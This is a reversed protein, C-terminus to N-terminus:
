VEQKGHHISRYGVGALIIATIINTSLQFLETYLDTNFLCNTFMSFISSLVAIIALKYWICYKTKLMVWYVCWALVVAGCAIIMSVMILDKQILYILCYLYPYILITAGILTNRIRNTKMYLFLTTISWGLLVSICVLLSWTFSKTLVYDCLLSIGIGLLCSITLCIILIHLIREKNKKINLKAYETFHKLLLQDKIQNDKQTYEEDGLLQAVEIQLEKCLPLLLSIDPFSIGREWKSITKDSVGLKEALERQTYNIKKRASVIQKGIDKQQM